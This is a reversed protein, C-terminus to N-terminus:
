WVLAGLDEDRGVSGWFTTSVMTQAAIPGVFPAHDAQPSLGGNDGVPEQRTQGLVDGPIGVMPDLNLGRRRGKGCRPSQV